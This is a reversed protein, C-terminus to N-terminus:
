MTDADSLLGLATFDHNDSIINLFNKANLMMRVGHHEERKANIELGKEEM